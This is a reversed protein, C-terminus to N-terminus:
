HSKSEPLSGSGTDLTMLRMVQKITQIARQNESRWVANRFPPVFWPRPVTTQGGTWQLLPIWRCMTTILLPSPRPPEPPHDWTTGPSGGGCGKSAEALIRETCECPRNGPLIGQPQLIVHIGRRILNSPRMESGSLLLEHPIAKAFAWAPGLLLQEHPM